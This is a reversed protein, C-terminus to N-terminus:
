HGADPNLTACALPGCREKGERKFPFKKIASVFSCWLAEMSVNPESAGIVAICAGQWRQALPPIILNAFIGQSGMRPVLPTCDYHFGYIFWIYVTRYCIDRCMAKTLM